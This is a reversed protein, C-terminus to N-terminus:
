SLTWNSFIDKQSFSCMKNFINSMHFDQGQPSIKVTHDPKKAQQQHPGQEQAAIMVGHDETLEVYITEKVTILKDPILIYM